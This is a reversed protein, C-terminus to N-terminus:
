RYRETIKKYNKLTETALNDWSYHRDIYFISRESMTRFLNKKDYAEIITEGVRRPTNKTVFGLKEKLILDTMTTGPTAIAPLGLSMAEILGLCQAETRSLQIFCDNDLLKAVKADGFIGDEISVISSLNFKNVYRELKKRSNEYDPGAITIHVHRKLLEDRYTRVAKVLIDLGKVHSDLRGIYIIKLGSRSFSRKKTKILNIGSPSIFSDHKVFSNKTGDRESISLYQIASANNIFRNFLLLNGIRKKISRIRQAERTLSGHPVVVYPINLALVEKYLKIFQPRYIEHFVVLDPNCFPAPLSSVSKHKTFYFVPFRRKSMDYSDINLLAPNARKSQASIIQPVVIAVGSKQTDRINGIHLINQM